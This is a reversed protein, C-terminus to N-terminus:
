RQTQLLEGLLLSVLRHTLDKSQFDLRPWGVAPPNLTLLLGTSRSIRIGLLFVLEDRKNRDIHAQFCCFPHSHRELLLYYM